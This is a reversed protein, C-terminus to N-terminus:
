GARRDATRGEGAERGPAALGAALDRVGPGRGPGPAVGARHDSGAVHLRSRELEHSPAFAERTAVAVPAPRNVERYRTKLVLWAGYAALVLLVGGLDLLSLYRGGDLVLWALAAKIGAFALLAIIIPPFIDGLMALSPHIAQTPDPEGRAAARQRAARV